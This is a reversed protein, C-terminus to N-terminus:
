YRRTWAFDIAGLGADGYRVGLLLNRRFRYEFSAEHANTRHLDQLTAGFQYTYSLYIDHRLYKGVEISGGRLAGATAPGGGADVQIVDIPLGRVLQGTLKGALVSSIAGAVQRDIATADVRQNGPDGSLVMGLVQATNYRPPYSSLEVSPASATGNVSIILTTDALTRTLRVDLTPDLPGDFSVRAHEIEYPRGLLEFRGGTSEAHGYIGLRGEVTRVELEGQFDADMDRSEIKFPGPVHAIVQFASPIVEPL